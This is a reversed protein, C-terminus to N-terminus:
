YAEVEVIRLRVGGGRLEQGLLDRAVELADRAFFSPSLRAGERAGRRLETRAPRTPM